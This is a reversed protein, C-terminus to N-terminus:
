LCTIGVLFMSIRDVTREPEWKWDYHQSVINTHHLRLFGTLVELVLSRESLVKRRGEGSMRRLM